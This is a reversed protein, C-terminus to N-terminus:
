YITSNLFLNNQVLIMLIFGQLSWPLVAPVWPPRSLRLNLWFHQHLLILYFVGTTLFRRSLVTANASLLDRFPQFHFYQSDSQSTSPQFYLIPTFGPSLGRIPSPHHQFAIFSSCCCFSSWFHFSSCFQISLLLLLLLLLFGTPPEGLCLAM